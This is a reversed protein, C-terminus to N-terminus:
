SNEEGPLLTDVHGDMFLYNRSGPGGSINVDNVDYVGQEEDTRPPAYGAGHFPDFDWLIALRPSSGDARRRARRSDMVQQRSKGALLRSPYEYSIGEQEFFSLDSPCQFLMKNNEAFPGLTVVLSPRPPLPAMTIVDISPMQACDPFRAKQGRVDLYTNLALGIQRLNSQCHMKRATARSYQVAPLTLSVVISIIGVVVLLEVLTFGRQFSAGTLPPRARGSFPQFDTKNQLRLM